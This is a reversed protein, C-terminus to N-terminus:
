NPKHQRQNIAVTSVIHHLLVNTTPFIEPTDDAGIEGIMQSYRISNYAAHAAHRITEERLLRVASTKSGNQDVDNLQTKFMNLADADTRGEFIGMLDTSNHIGALKLKLRMADAYDIISGSCPSNYEHSILDPRNSVYHVVLVGDKNNVRQSTHYLILEFDRHPNPLRISSPDNCHVYQYDLHNTDVIHACVVVDPKDDEYADDVDQLQTLSGGIFQDENAEASAEAIVSAMVTAAYESYLQTKKFM